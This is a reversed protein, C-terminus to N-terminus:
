IKRDFWDKRRTLKLDQLLSSKVNITFLFSQRVGVPIWNLRFEWCHLQRIFDISTFTIQKNKIDYGSTYGIKWNGTLNFDGSFNITQLYNTTNPNNLTNYRNYGISYNINFTWPINFDYYDEPRENIYKLDGLYEKRATTKKKFTSKNISANIGINADTILGLKGNGAAYFENRRIVTQYGETTKIENLYPDMNSSANLTINKFLRTRASFNIPSLNLSDAFLNYSGGARLSEFIQIKNEKQATDKGQNVKMEVNNDLSFGVNGQRGVGPGGVIGQEFISYRVPNGNKDNYYQYYGYKSDGYDPNYSFDVSPSAVHRIAKIKNGSFYKMGYYRTNLGIRPTYTFAREFGNVRNTQVGADTYEKRITQGYWYENLTVSASLTYYKLIKFSTQVPINHVMGYRAATDFFNAFSNGNLGGFLISDKTNVQNRFSTTYNMSINEYWRDAVSKKKSKFPNFSSVTFTLDPLTIQVDRTATNQSMRANTTLNYKGNKFGKNYSISSNLQNNVINAPNYSNNQLYSAGNSNVSVVNVSANFSTFPRAKADSRHNWSVMFDKSLSYNPDLEENFKNYAYNVSLDGAFHYRSSYRLGNNLAWSRNAYFSGTLRYDAKEGLGFYYGGDRLFYGRDNSHGYSPIIVGSAQGRKISFIGFPLILPSPIGEFQLNAVGTIIKKDPIVKIRSAAIHYHPSDLSCTTYKAHEINFNNDATKGVDEGHIYGEGEKTRFESLYGRKTRTNYKIVEARYEAKGQKFVPKGKIKGTSDKIGTATIINNALDAKIFEAELTLDDQTVKANGYMYFIRNVADYPMSDRAYYNVQSKIADKSIRDPITDEPELWVEEEFVFASDKKLALGTDSKLSDVTEKVITSNKTTQPKALKKGKSPIQQAYVFGCLLLLCPILKCVM